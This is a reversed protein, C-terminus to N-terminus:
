WYYYIKKRRQAVGYNRADLLKIHVTYGINKLKDLLEELKERKERLEQFMKWLLIDLIYNM